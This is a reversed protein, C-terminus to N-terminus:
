SNDGYAKRLWEEVEADVDAASKLVIRANVVSSGMSSNQELRGRRRPNALKLGLDVRTRTTPQVAAFTRRQTLLSVYNKRAQITIEGLSSVSALVAELIPRLQPRDAYQGDILDDASALLFDRYGFREMVLLMQPYGTVGQEGLWSRMSVEDAFGQATIRANWAEVGDGTRRRLLDAIWANRQRWERTEVL